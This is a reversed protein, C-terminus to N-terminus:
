ALRVPLSELGNMLSVPRWRLEEPPVALAVDPFRALLAGLAVEAEMRALPAGLCHHVGHGFAVHGSTDRGLDLRDPDPFQAPDRDASCIAPLVWEGAPIVVGGIRVDETTFRDNAHNVPNTFRLLEEVAAPLLSPDQRLRAAQEPHTLLALIGSAILNITTDFGAMVLLYVTSVLETGTLGDEAGDCALILASVLDDGPETRKAAILETFYAALAREVRDHEARDDYAAVAARIWEQDAAPVGLLECIVAIPLPRAYRDLLDIVDSGAAALEDLLGATIEQARPRLAARRPTFAKQVLRRQRTHEPPDSHLMHAAVGTAESPRTRPAGPWRHVDKALRPDTLVARVDDYRTVFWARGYGPMLVPAVPRSERLRTFFGVPDQYYADGDLPVPQMADTM